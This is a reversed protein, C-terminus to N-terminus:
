TRAEVAVEASRRLLLRPLLQTLLMGVFFFASIALIAHSIGSM